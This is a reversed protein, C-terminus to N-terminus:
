PKISFLKKIGGSFVVIEHISLITNIWQQRFLHVIIIFSSGTNM